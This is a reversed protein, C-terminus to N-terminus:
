TARDLAGFLGGSGALVAELRAVLLGPAGLEDADGADVLLALGNEAVSELDALLRQLTRALAADPAPDCRAFRARYGDAMAPYLARVLGATLARGDDAIDGDHGAAGELLAMAENALVGPSKTVATAEPLGVSVPLLEALQAARWAHALSAGSLFGAFPAGVRPAARGAIAFCALEVHRCGGVHAVSDHLSLPRSM